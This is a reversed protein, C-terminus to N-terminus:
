GDPNFKFAYVWHAGIAKRGPPLTTQEFVRHEELSAVEWKIAMHWVSTDSQAIAENYTDPATSPDFHHIRSFRSPDIYAALLYSENITDVEASWLCEFELPCIFDQIVVFSIFDGLLVHSIDGPGCASQLTLLCEKHHALDEDYAHGAAMRHIDQHPWSVTNDTTVPPGPLSQPTGLHGLQSENFVVDCSFYYKGNLDHVWWLEIRKM